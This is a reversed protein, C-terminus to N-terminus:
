RPGQKAPANTNPSSASPPFAAQAANTRLQLAAQFTATRFDALLDRVKEESANIIAGPPADNVAAAVDHCLQQFRTQLQELLDDASLFPEASM